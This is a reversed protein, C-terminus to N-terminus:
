QTHMQTEVVTSSYHPPLPPPLWWLKYQPICAQVSLILVRSLNLLQLAGVQEMYPCYCFNLQTNNHVFSSQESVPLRTGLTWCKCHRYVPNLKCPFSPPFQLPSLVLRSVHRTQSKPNAKTRTTHTKGDRSSVDMTSTVLASGAWALPDSNRSSETSPRTNEECSCPTMPFPRFKWFSSWMEHVHATSRNCVWCNIQSMQGENALYTRNTDEAEIRLRM